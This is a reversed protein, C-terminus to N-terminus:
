PCTLKKASSESNEWVGKYILSTFFKVGSEQPITHFTENYMILGNRIEGMNAKCATVKARDVAEPIKPLLYVALIGIILIVALLEILTFGARRLLRKAIRRTKM